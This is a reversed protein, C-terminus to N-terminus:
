IKCKERLTESDDLMKALWADIAKIEKVDEGLGGLLCSLRLVLLIRFMVEEDTGKDFPYLERCLEETIDVHDMGQLNKFDPAKLWDQLLEGDGDIYAQSRLKYKKKDNKKIKM